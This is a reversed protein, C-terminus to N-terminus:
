YDGDESLHDYTNQPQLLSHSLGAQPYVEKAEELTYFSDLFNIRTQGALVSGKKYTDYGYVKFGDAKEIIDLYEFKQGDITVM